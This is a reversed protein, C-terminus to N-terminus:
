KAENLSWDYDLYEIKFEKNLLMRKINEDDIYDALYKEISGAPKTFDSQYWDFIKSIYITKTKLDIRNRLTDKLFQKAQENLQRNLTEATYAEPRLVPCSASACNVAFHIREEKFTKLLIEKEIEDLTMKKGNISFFERKWPSNGIFATLKGLASLETISKVPYNDIILKLTFANYANIWFAIKEERTPLANPNAKSLQDLYTQFEKDSKLSKYDVKDGKVHRKLAENYLSHDFSQATASETMLPLLFILTFLKM